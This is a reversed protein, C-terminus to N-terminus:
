DQAANALGEVHRLRRHAIPPLAWRRRWREHARAGKPDFDEILRNAEPGRELAIVARHEGFILDDQNRAAGLAFRAVKADADTASLWSNGLADIRISVQPAWSVSCSIAAIVRASCPGRTVLPASEGTTSSQRCSVQEILPFRDCVVSGFSWGGPTLESFAVPIEDGSEVPLGEWDISDMALRPPTGTKLRGLEFGLADLSRSIGTAAQEGFRGGRTQEPGMHMLGRMFTGATVGVCPAQLVVLGESTSIEVGAVIPADANADDTLIQEVTGEIVEIEPRARVLSQAVRAYAIKDSQCRPGHVASGKSTNLVKFQIGTADAILGMVGGLADVERVLQGKALGGIAPNCSMVGIKSADISILAVSGPTGLRNAAAWAAEIGAHGGGVV